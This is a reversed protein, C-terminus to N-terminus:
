LRVFLVQSDRRFPIVDYMSKERADVNGLSLLQLLTNKKLQRKQGEWIKHSFSLAGPLFDIFKNLAWPPNNSDDCYTCLFYVSRCFCSSYIM